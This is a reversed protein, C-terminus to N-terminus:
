ASQGKVMQQFESDTAIQDLLKRSSRLGKEMMCISAQSKKFRKAFYFQDLGTAKRIELLKKGDRENQQRTNEAQVSRIKDVADKAKKQKEFFADIRKDIRQIEEFFESRLRRELEVLQRNVSM